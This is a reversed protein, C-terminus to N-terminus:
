ERESEASYQADEYVEEKKVEGSEPLM